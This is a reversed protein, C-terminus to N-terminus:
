QVVPVLVVGGHQLGEAARLLADIERGVDPLLALHAVLEQGREHLAGARAHLDPDQEVAHASHMSRGHVIELGGAALHFDEPWRAESFERAEVLAVVPAGDDDVAGHAERAPGRHRVLPQAAGPVLLLPAVRHDAHGSGQGEGQLGGERIEPGEGAALDELARLEKIWVPTALRGALSRWGRRNTRAWDKREAWRFSYM